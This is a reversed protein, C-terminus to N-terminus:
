FTPVATYVVQLKGEGPPVTFDVTLKYEVVTTEGPTLGDENKLITLQGKPM